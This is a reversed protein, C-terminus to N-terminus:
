VTRRAKLYRQLIIRPNVIDGEFYADPSLLRLRKPGRRDMDVARSAFAVPWCRHVTWQSTELRVMNGFRRFDLMRENLSFDLALRWLKM